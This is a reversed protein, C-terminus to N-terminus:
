FFFIFIFLFLYFKCTADVFIEKNTKLIDFFPTIFGFYSVGSESNYFLKYKYEQLLMQASLLQNNDRMYAKKIFHAWWAHVQKQTLDPHQLELQKFIDSPTLHLSRKIVEKISDSLGFRDPRKHLLNHQLDITAVCTEM